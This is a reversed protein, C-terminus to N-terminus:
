DISKGRQRYTSRTDTMVGICKDDQYIGKMEGRTTREGLKILQIFSDQECTEM